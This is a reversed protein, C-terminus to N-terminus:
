MMHVPDVDVSVSVGSWAAASLAGRARLAGLLRQLPGATKAFLLIEVRYMEVLREMPPPVPGQVRVPLGPKDAAGATLATMLRALGDGAERVAAYKKHALVIRALRGYPPYGWEMRHPLETEVFGLYDHACAAAIAPEQPQFTQVVVNGREGGGAGMARGSRGAVQCVLQFTREAARFDPITMALDANLVGVLQVNPFDLGKAIMQTGILLDIEGRGFADLAEQYQGAHHMSDSDMRKLRGGGLEPFKRLLEDEARQTGQGLHTLLAQCLPCREPLVMSTLCYHCQVTGRIRGKEDKTKQKEDKRERHVVMTADCNECMLVWECRPCMVYHAYGRRNLLFIAQKKQELTQRLHHELVTSLIHLGRREKHQAKMDVVIVRPMRTGLPRTRLSILGWKEHSHANHWSELAPTASGLLIPVDLMQARRIAVDRGHYKPLNDQKYSGDHEEDVVILGIDAAPAFIASRAGVVVQAWGGAIAHWHQHRQADKMGSHLVAVREFRATFRRVTQPTLSIEPVLVIARKGAAVVREIARIYLETKGSGTVGHILRVAFGGADLLGEIETKARQQDPSLELVPASTGVHAGVVAAEPLKAERQAAILGLALLRKLLPRGIQAHAMADLEARPGQRLYEHLAAFAAKSKASIKVGELTDEVTKEPAALSLTVKMPLRTAKKVAAPVMTSLTMGIPACYYVSIWRALELLDAPVAPVERLVDAVAKVGAGGGGDAGGAGDAAAFLMEEEGGREEAEAPKNFAPPEPSLSLVTAATLRNGRGLPVIVRSGVRVDRRLTPPVLYTYTADVPQDVAVTAYLAAAPAAPPSPPDSM